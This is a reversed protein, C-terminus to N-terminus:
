ALIMKLCFILFRTGGELFSQLRRETEKGYETGDLASRKPVFQKLEDRPGLFLFADESEVLPGSIRAKSEDGGILPPKAAMGQLWTGRIPLIWPWSWQAFRPELDNYAGVVNTGPLVVFTTAGAQQLADEIASPKGQIRRFHLSGMYLLAKQHQALVQKKVIERYNQDRAPVFAQLDDRTHVNEWHLVAEGCVLRLKPRGPPSTGNVRRVAEFLRMEPEDAVPGIALGDRWVLKLQETSIKDGAIYRDVVPQYLSNAGELVINSVTRSFEPSQILSLLVRHEQVNGHMDGLMVIQRISFAENLAAVPDKPKLEQAM